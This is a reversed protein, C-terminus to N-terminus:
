IVVDPELRGKVPLDLVFTQGALRDKQRGEDDLGKWASTVALRGADPGIFAPCSVQAAPMAISRLLTGDPKYADVRSGGWRANWLVGDSGVVAGDIGGDAAKGDVFVQPEARPLGTEPDCPVRWLKQAQTDAFYATAGDPSFCISNPILIGDFLPRLERGRMWHISGKVEGDVKGMISVWFAGSPHVRADNSRTNPRAEDLPLYLSLRGSKRDRLHFGNESLILQREDDVGAIASAMFPLDHVLTEGSAFRHELLKRNVIDFWFLANARHDYSPGEGLECPHDSLVSVKVTESM